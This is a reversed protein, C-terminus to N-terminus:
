LAGGFCHADRETPSYWHQEVPVKPLAVVPSEVTVRDGLGRVPPCADVVAVGAALTPGFRYSPGAGRDRVDDGAPRVLPHEDHPVYCRAVSTNGECVSGVGRFEDARWERPLGPPDVAEAAPRLAADAVEGRVLRLRGAGARRRRRWADRVVKGMGWADHTVRDGIELDPIARNGVGGRVGGRALRSSALSEQASGRSTSRYGHDGYRFPADDGYSAVFPAAISRRRDVRRTRGSDRRPVAVASEVVASGVGLPCIARSLYLRERARTIGVYALRREEAMEAPEGLSRLHPFVGDELGTLFVVPFELGKATHLTM